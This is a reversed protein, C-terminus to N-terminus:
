VGWSGCNEMVAELMQGEIGLQALAGAKETAYDPLGGGVAPAYCLLCM